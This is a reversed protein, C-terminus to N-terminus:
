RSLRERRRWAIWATLLSLSLLSWVSMTPVPEPPQPPPPPPVPQDSSVTMEYNGQSGGFGHVLIYYTENQESAWNVTANLASFGACPSDDNGTICQLAGPSGSFVSLKTDYNSGANCTTARLNGGTGNVRYWVGGTTIATGCSATGADATDLTAGVTSGSVTAPAALLDQNIVIANQITDNAPQALALSACFFLPLVALRCFRNTPM